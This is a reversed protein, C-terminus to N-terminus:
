SITFERMSSKVNNVLIGFKHLGTTFELPIEERITTAAPNSLTMPYMKGDIILLPNDDRSIEPWVNLTLIRTAANVEIPERNVIVPNFSFKFRKSTHFKRFQNSSTLIKHIITLSIKGIKLISSFAVSTTDHRNIRINEPFDIVIQNKQVHLISKDTEDDVTQNDIVVDGLKIVTYVSSLNKGYLKLFHDVTM